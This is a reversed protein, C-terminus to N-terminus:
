PKLDIKKLVELCFQSNRMESPFMCSKVIDATTTPGRYVHQVTVGATMIGTVLVLASAWILAIRAGCSWEDFM